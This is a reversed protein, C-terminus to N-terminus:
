IQATTTDEEIAEELTGVKLAKIWAADELIVVAEALAEVEAGEAM